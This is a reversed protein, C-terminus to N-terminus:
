QIPVQYFCTFNEGSAQYGTPAFPLKAAPIFIQAFTEKPTYEPRQTHLRQMNPSKKGGAECNKVHPV